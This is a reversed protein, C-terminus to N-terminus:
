PRHTRKVRTRSRSSEPPARTHSNKRIIVSFSLPGSASKLNRGTWTAPPSTTVISHRRHTHRATTWSLSRCKVLHSDRAARYAGGELNVQTPSPNFESM